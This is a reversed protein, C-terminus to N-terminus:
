ATTPDPVYILTTTATACRVGLRSQPTTITICIHSHTCQGNRKRALNCTTPVLYPTQRSVINGYLFSMCWPRPPPAGAPLVSEMQGAMRRSFGPPYRKLHRPQRCWQRHASSLYEWDTTAALVCWYNPTVLGSERGENRERGPALIGLGRYAALKDPPPAQAL